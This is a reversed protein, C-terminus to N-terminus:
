VVSVKGACMLYNGGDICLMTIPEEHLVYSLLLQLAFDILKLDM